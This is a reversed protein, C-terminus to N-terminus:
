RSCIPWTIRSRYSTGTTSMSSRSGTRTETRVDGQGVVPLLGVTTLTWALNGVVPPIVSGSFHRFLASYLAGCFWIEEAVGTMAATAVLASAFAYGTRSVLGDVQSDLFPIQVAVLGGAFFAISTAAATLVAVWVVPVRARVPAAPTGAPRVGGIWFAGALWVATLIGTWLYFAASGSDVRVSRALAVAGASLVVVVRVPAALAVRSTM